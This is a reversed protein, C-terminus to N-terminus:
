AYQDDEPVILPDNVDRDAFMGGRGPCGLVKAMRKWLVVHGRIEHVIAIRDKGVDRGGHGGQVDLRNTRDGHCFAETSSVNADLGIVGRDRGRGSCPPATGPAGRVLDRVAHPSACMERTALTGIVHGTM